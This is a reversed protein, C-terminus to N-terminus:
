NGTVKIKVVSMTLPAPLLNICMQMIAKDMGMRSCGEYATRDTMYQLQYVMIAIVYM